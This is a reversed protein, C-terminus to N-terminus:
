SVRSCRMRCLRGPWRCRRTHSEEYLDVNNSIWWIAADRLMADAAEIDIYGRGFQPFEFDQMAELPVRVLFYLRQGLPKVFAQITVDAAIDHAVSTSSLALTAAALIAAVLTTRVLRRRNSIM